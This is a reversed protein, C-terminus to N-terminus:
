WQYGSTLEIAFARLWRSANNFSSEISNPGQIINLRLVEDKPTEDVGIYSDIFWKM